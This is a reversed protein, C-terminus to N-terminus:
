ATMEDLWRQQRSAPARTPFLRTGPQMLSLYQAAAVRQRQCGQRLVRLCHPVSPAEGMFCRTREAFRQGELQWWAAAKAPDPWPLGEDEDMAVNDDQPDDNPGPEFGAPPPCEMAARALDLGVILTFSEGALRALAPDNMQQVLWPLYQPDGAVGVAHVLLRAKAGNRAMSQLLAHAQEPSLVKLLLGLAGLQDTGPTQAMHTLHQVSAQRDGLLLAACAVDFQEAPPAQTLRALCAQRLDVRGLIGAVVVARVPAAFDAVAADLAEGPDVQHMACAVLGMDRRFANSSGLLARAVGRLSASPVWGMASVLGARVDPAAQAVALLKEFLAVDQSEIACVSAAFVSGRSPTQLAAECARRGLEGGVAIGDLSAALRDDHRRLRHLDVQPSRLLASRLASLMEADDRHRHVLASVPAVPNSHSSM